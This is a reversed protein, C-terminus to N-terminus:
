LKSAAIFLDDKQQQTLGLQTVLKGVVANDYRVATARRWEIQDVEDLSLVATQVTTLLGAAHLAKEAQVMSVSSPIDILSREALIATEEEATLLERGNKTARYLVM